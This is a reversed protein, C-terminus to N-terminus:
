RPLEKFLQNMKIRHKKYEKHFYPKRVWVIFWFKFICIAYDGLDRIDSGFKSFGFLVSDKEYEVIIRVREGKAERRLRKAREM